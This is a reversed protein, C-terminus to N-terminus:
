GTVRFPYSALTEVGGGPREGDLTLRYSGSALYSGPVTIMLTELVNPRLGGHQWLVEGAATTITVRFTAFRPDGGVDVALALWSGAAGREVTAPEAGEGRPVSLLVVSTAVPAQVVATAARGAGALFWGSTLIAAVLAAAAALAWPRRRALRSLRAALGIRVAASWRAAEEAAVARLGLRLGRAAELEQQCRACAVFHEEFRGEEEPGLRGLDYLAILDHDDIYAHDM